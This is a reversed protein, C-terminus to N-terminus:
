SNSRYLVGYKMIQLDGRRQANRCAGRVRTTANSLGTNNRGIQRGVANNFMDMKKDNGSSDSEHRTAFEYTDTTSLRIEM